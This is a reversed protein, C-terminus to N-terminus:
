YINELIQKFIIYKATNLPSVYLNTHALLVFGEFSVSEFHEMMQNDCTVTLKTFLLLVSFCAAGGGSTKKICIKVTLLIFLINEVVLINVTSFYKLYCFVTITHFSLLACGTMVVIGLIQIHKNLFILLM